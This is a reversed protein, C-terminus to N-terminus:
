LPMTIIFFIGSFIFTLSYEQVHIWCIKTFPDVSSSKEQLWVHGSCVAAAARGMSLVVFMNYLSLTPKFMIVSLVDLEMNTM